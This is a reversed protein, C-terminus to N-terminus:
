AADRVADQGTVGPRGEAEGHPCEAPCSDADLSSLWRPITRDSVGLLKAAEKQTKGEAILARADEAKPFRIVKGSVDQKSKATRKKTTRKSPPSAPDESTSVPCQHVNGPMDPKAETDASIVPARASEAKAEAEGYGTLGLIFLFVFGPLLRNLMEIFISRAFPLWKEVGEAEAGLCSFVSAILEAMKNAHEPVYGLATRKDEAEKLDKDLRAKDETKTQWSALKTAENQAGSLATNKAEMDCNRGCTRTAWTAEKVANQAVEVQKASTSDFKGLDAIQKKL